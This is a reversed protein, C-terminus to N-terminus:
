MCNLQMPNPLCNIQLDSNVNSSYTINSHFAELLANIVHLHNIQGRMLLKYVLENHMNLFNNVTEVRLTVIQQKVCSRYDM